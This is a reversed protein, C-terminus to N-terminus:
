LTLKYLAIENNERNASILYDLGNYNYKYVNASGCGHDLIDSRFEKKSADWTFILLDRNGERHGIVVSPKDCIVGGYISHSFEAPKEYEYVKEFEGNINKYISIKDGHFPSIVTLEKEGDGDMDVLVADSGPQDLLKRIGWQKNQEEPPTFMFIGNESSIIASIEGNECVTTFGHNKLMNEKIVEMHIQHNVNYGSLDKPLLCAYVKGPKSWDDKFKHESKITCAILFHNGHSELIGFRHIFPLEILVKKEWVNRKIPTVILIRAEASDNPSFFKSTALFQGDTEPLQQMSMVGGPETWVTEEENGLYDFMICRDHKEAAVLIHNKGQYFLPAISYCKNLNGIIKKEVNM